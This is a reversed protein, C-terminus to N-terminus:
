NVYKKKNLQSLVGLVIYFPIIVALVYARSAFVNILVLVSGAVALITLEIPVRKKRQIIDYIGLFNVVSMAVNWIVFYIANGGHIHNFLTIQLVGLGISSMGLVNLLIILIIGISDKGLSPEIPLQFTTLRQFGLGTLDDYNRIAQQNNPNIRLIEKLCELRDEDSAAVKYFLGWAREDNPNHRIVEELLQRAQQVNGAKVAAMGQVLLDEPM